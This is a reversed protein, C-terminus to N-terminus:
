ASVSCRALCNASSPAFTIIEEWSASSSSPTRFSSSVSGPSTWATTKLRPFGSSTFAVASFTSSSKPCTSSFIFHRSQRAQCTFLTCLTYSFVLSHSLYSIFDGSFLGTTELYQLDQESFHFGTLENLVDELGAAVFFNRKLHNDRIFISFTAQSFVRHAYYSAAMTLEYLDTFLPGIRHTTIM